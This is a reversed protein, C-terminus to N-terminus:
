IIQGTVRNTLPLVPIYFWVWRVEVSTRKVTVVLSPSQGYKTQGREVASVLFPIVAHRLKTNTTGLTHYARAMESNM